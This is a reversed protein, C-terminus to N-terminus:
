SMVINCKKNMKISSSVSGNCPFLWTILAIEPLYARNGRLIILLTGSGSSYFSFDAEEESVRFNIWVGLGSVLAGLNPGGGRAGNM